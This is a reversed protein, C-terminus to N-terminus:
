KVKKSVASSWGSIGDPYVAAVRFSYERGPKLGTICYLPDKIIDVQEWLVSQKSSASNRKSFQIVYKNANSIADWQLFIEGNLIGNTAYVPGPFEYGPEKYSNDDNFITEELFSNKM